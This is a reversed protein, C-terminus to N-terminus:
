GNSVEYSIHLKDLIKKIEDERDDDMTYKNRHFKYKKGTLISSLKYWKSDHYYFLPYVSRVKYMLIFIAFVAITYKSEKFWFYHVKFANDHVRSCYLFGVLDEGKYFAISTNTYNHIISLMNSHIMGVTFPNPSDRKILEAHNLTDSIKIPTVTLKINKNM